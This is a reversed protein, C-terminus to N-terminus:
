RALTMKKSKSWGSVELNYFYTGTPLLRGHGDRGDWEDVYHDPDLEDNILIRVL